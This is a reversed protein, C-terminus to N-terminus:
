NKFPNEEKLPHWRQWRGQDFYLFYYHPNDMSEVFEVELSKVRGEEMKDITIKVDSLLFTEGQSFSRNFSFIKESSTEFYFRTPHSIKIHHSDLINISVNDDLSSLPYVPVKWQPYHYSLTHYLGLYMYNEGSLSAKPFNIFFLRDRSTKHVIIEDLANYLRKYNSQVAEDYGYVQIVNIVPPFLLGTIIFFLALRKKGLKFIAIAALYAYGISHILLLRDNVPPATVFPLLLLIWLTFLSIEPYHERQRWILYVIYFLFLTFLIIIFLYKSFVYPSLGAVVNGYFLSILCLSAAKLFDLPYDSLLRGEYYSSGYDYALYFALYISNIIILSLYVKWQCKVMEKFRKYRIWDYTLFLFPFFFALEKTLLTLLYFLIFLINYLPRRNKYFRTYCLFSLVLFTACIIDSRSASWRVNLYHCPELAFVLAGCFAMASHNCFSLYFLYLLVVLIAYWIVNHIHYPLPNGGWLTYDILHFFTAVPRFYKLRWKPSTWWPIVTMQIYERVEEPTTIFNFMNMEREGNKIQKLIEQQVYDDFMFGADFTHAYFVFVMLILFAIHFSPKNFRKIDM